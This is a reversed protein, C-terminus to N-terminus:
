FTSNTANKQSYRLKDSSNLDEVLSMLNNKLQKLANGKKLSQQSANNFNLKSTSKNLM